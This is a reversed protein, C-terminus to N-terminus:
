AAAERVAAAVRDAVVVLAAAVLMADASLDDGDGDEGGAIHGYVVFVDEVLGDFFGLPRDVSM